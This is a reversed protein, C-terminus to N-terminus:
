RTKRWYQEYQQQNQGDWTGSRMSSAHGDSWAINATFNHPGYDAGTDTRLGAPRARCGLGGAVTRWEWACWRQPIVAEFLLITVDPRTIFIQKNNYAKGRGGACTYPSVDYSVDILPMNFAGGSGYERAFPNVDCKYIEKDKAVYEFLDHSWQKLPWANPYELSSYYGPFMENDDAYLFMGLTLQKVHNQCKSKIATARAQQLAPLLLSALIAIIAIVVLLEILTFKPKEM